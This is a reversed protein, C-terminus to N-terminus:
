GSHQSGKGEITPDEMLIEEGVRGDDSNRGGTDSIGLGDALSGHVFERGDTMGDRTHHSAYGDAKDRCRNLMDFSTQLNLIGNIFIFSEVASRYVTTPLYYTSVVGVWGEM